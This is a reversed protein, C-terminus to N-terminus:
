PLFFAQITQSPLLDLFLIQERTEQPTQRIADLEKRTERFQFEKCFRQRLAMVSDKKRCRRRNGSM